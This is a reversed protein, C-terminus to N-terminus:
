GVPVAITQGEVLGVGSLANLEKIQYIMEQVEGPEAVTSAIEWLSDGEAVEVVRTEVPVGSEGTAASQGGFLTLLAFAVAVLALLLVLRGLRTLRM